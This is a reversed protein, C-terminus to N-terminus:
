GKSAKRLSARRSHPTAKRGPLALVAFPQMSSSLLDKRDQQGPMSHGQDQRIRSEKEGAKQWKQFVLIQGIDDHSTENGRQAAHYEMPQGLRDPRSDALPDIDGLIRHGQRTPCSLGAPKEAEAMFQPFTRIRRATSEDVTLAIGILKHDRTPGLGGLQNTAHIRSPGVTFVSDLFEFLIEGQIGKSQVRKIRSIVSKAQATDGAIEQSPKTLRHQRALNRTGRQLRDSEGPVVVKSGTLRAVPPAALNKSGDGYVKRLGALQVETPSSTSPCLSDEWRMGNLLHNPSNLDGMRRTLREAGSM